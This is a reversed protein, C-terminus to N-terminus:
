DRDGEKALARFEARSMSARVGDPKWGAAAIGQALELAAAESYVPGVAVFVEDPGSVLVLIKRAAV